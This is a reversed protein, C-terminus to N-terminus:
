ALGGLGCLDAGLRIISGGPKLTKSKRKEARGGSGRRAGTFLISSGTERTEAKEAELKGNKRNGEGPSKTLLECMVGDVGEMRIATASDHRNMRTFHESDTQHALDQLISIHRSLIQHRSGIRAM